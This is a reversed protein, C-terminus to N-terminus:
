RGGWLPFAFRYTVGVTAVNHDGDMANFERGFAVNARVDPRIWYSWGAFVRQANSTPIEMGGMDMTGMLPSVFFQEMRLEAQSKRMFSKAFPVKRMRYAGEIWYGKGILPDRAFEGRIDLPISKLQWTWDFGAVNRADVGLKRQYSAGVEVRARPFFLGVRGGAARDSVFWDTDSSASFYGAYNINLDANVAVAGRAQGGNSDTMEFATIFPATQFNRIWGPHLRENFTGFPTLFRGGVLTLYKNVFIDGQVYEIGKDWAHDWPQGNMHTYNGEFEGESEILIHDGIPLLIIPSLTPTLQQQGPEFTSGFGVFGTLVPVGSEPKQYQPGPGQNQGTAVAIMLLTIFVSLLLVKILRKM